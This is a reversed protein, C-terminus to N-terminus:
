FKLKFNKFPLKTPSKEPVLDRKKDEILMTIYRGQQNSSLSVGLVECNRIIETCGRIDRNRLKYNFLVQLVAVYESMMDYKLLSQLLRVVADENFDKLAMISFATAKSRVIEQLSESAELLDNSLMQDSFWTSAWTIHWFCLLPYHDSWEVSFEFVYKKFVMLSAESRNLVSDQILDRFIIRYLSRLSDHKSYSSKLISLGIDSNGKICQAIALYHKFEGNRQYANPDMKACYKQLVIITDPKGNDSYHKFLKKLVNFTIYKRTKQCETLLEQVEKDKNKTLLEIFFNDLESNNMKSVNNFTNTTVCHDTVDNMLNKPKKSRHRELLEKAFTDLTYTSYLCSHAAKMRQINNLLRVYNLIYRTVQLRM